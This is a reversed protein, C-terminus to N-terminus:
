PPHRNRILSTGRYRTPSHVEDGDWKFNEAYSKYVTTNITSGQVPNGRDYSFSM